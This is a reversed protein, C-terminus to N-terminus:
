GEGFLICTQKSKHTTIPPGKIAARTQFGLQWLMLHGHVAQGGSCEPVVQVFEGEQQLPLARLCDKYLEKLQLSLQKLADPASYRAELFECVDVFDGQRMESEVWAGVQQWVNQLVAM